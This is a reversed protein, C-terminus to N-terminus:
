RWSPSRWCFAPPPATPAAAWCSPRPAASMVSGRLGARRRMGRLAVTPSARSPGAQEPAGPARAATAPTAEGVTDNHQRRLHRGRCRRAIREARLAKPHARSSDRGAGREGCRCDSSRPARARQRRWCPHSKPKRGAAARGRAHRGSIPRASSAQSSLRSRVNTSNRPPASRSCSASTRARRHPRGHHAGRDPRPHRLDGHHRARAAPAEIEVQMEERLKKDLASLPEDMLLVKPNISSPARSSRRAAAPRRLTAGALSRRLGDLRVTKLAARAREQREARGVKRMRLPFAINDLVSMHPFLTYRQFVM